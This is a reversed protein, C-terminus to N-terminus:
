AEEITVPVRDGDKAPLAERLFEPAIFEAVDTHTTRDPVIWHCTRTGLRAVFCTAGGFTRGSAQFGDIRIGKWHRAADLRERDAPAVRVNLTGPYPTYGLRETFQVVYGPQSLYYRGEGLGSAVEGELTLRGPGEFIRRYQEYEARLIEMAAPALTIRQRRAALQRTILARKALAVLHRDAAQQSTGTREGIERSTITVPTQGAGLGALLRLIAVEPGKAGKAGATM